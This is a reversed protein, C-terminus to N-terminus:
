ASSMSHSYICSVDESLAYARGVPSADNIKTNLITTLEKNNYAKFICRDSGIRSQVCPLLKDPLNIINSIGVVVLRRGHNCSAAQLPWDFFNYLLTQKKTVLYDLEDLLLVTIEPDNSEEGFGQEKTFYAQLLAAATEPTRKQKGFQSLSECFKVYSEFPDMMEMGNLSIFQFPPIKGTAQEHQLKQIAYRVSATKGLGIVLCV